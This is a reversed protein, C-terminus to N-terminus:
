SPFSERQVCRPPVKNRTIQTHSVVYEKALTLDQHRYGAEREPGPCRHSLKREVMSHWAKCPTKKM